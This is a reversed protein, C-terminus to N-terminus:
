LPQLQAYSIRTTDSVNNNYAVSSPTMTAIDTMAAQQAYSDLEFQQLSPKTEDEAYNSMEVTM